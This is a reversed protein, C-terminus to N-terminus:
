FNTYYPRRLISKYSVVVKWACRMKGKYYYLAIEWECNYYRLFKAVTWNPDVVARRTKRCKRWFIVKGLFHGMVSFFNRTLLQIYHPRREHIQEEKNTWKRSNRENMLMFWEKQLEHNVKIIFLLFLKVNWNNSQFIKWSKCDSFSSNQDILTM